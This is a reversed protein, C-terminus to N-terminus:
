KLSPKGRNGLLTVVSDTKEERDTISSDAVYLRRMITYNTTDKLYIYRTIYKIRRKPLNSSCQISVPTNSGKISLNVTNAKLKLETFPNTDKVPVENYIPLYKTATVVPPKNLVTGIFSGIAIMIGIATISLFQKM